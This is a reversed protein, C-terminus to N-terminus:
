STRTHLDCIGIIVSGSPSVFIDVDINYYRYKIPTHGRWKSTEKTAKMGLGIIVMLDVPVCPMRTYRYREM